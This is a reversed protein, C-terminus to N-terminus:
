ATAEAVKSDTIIPTVIIAGSSDVEVRCDSMTFTLTALSDGDPDTFLRDLADPDICDYLCDDLEMPDVGNAEAVAYIVVQSPPTSKSLTHVHKSDTM